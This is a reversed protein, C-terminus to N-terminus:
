PEPPTAVQHCRACTAILDAYIEARDGHSRAARARKAVDRIKEVEGHTEADVAEGDQQPPVLPARTLTVTGNRWATESPDVLGMWMQDAGVEHRFMRSGVDEPPDEWPLPPDRPQEPGQRAQWHCNACALGLKGLSGAAERVTGAVTIDGAHRQMDKVWHRWDAPFHDGYDREALEAAHKKALELDGDILADRADVAMWFSERMHQARDPPQEVAAAGTTAAPTSASAPESETAEGHACSALLLVVALARGRAGRADPSRLEMDM